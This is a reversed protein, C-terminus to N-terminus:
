LRIHINFNFNNGIVFSIIKVFRRILCEHLIIRLTSFNQKLSICFLLLLLSEDHNLKSESSLTYHIDQTVLFVHHLLRIFPLSLSVLSSSPQDLIKGGTEPNRLLGDRYIYIYVRRIYTSVPRTYLRHFSEHFRRPSDYMNSLIPFWITLCPVCACRKGEWTPSCQQLGGPKNISTRVRPHVRPAATNLKAIKDRSMEARRIPPSSLLPLCPPSLALPTSYTEEPFLNIFFLFFFFFSPSLPLIPMPKARLM